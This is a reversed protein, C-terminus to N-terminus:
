TTQTTKKKLFKNIDELYPMKLTFNDIANVYQSELLLIISNQKIGPM